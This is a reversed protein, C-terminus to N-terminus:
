RKVVGLAAAYEDILILLFLVSIMWKQKTVKTKNNYPIKYMANFTPHVVLSVVARALRLVMPLFLAAIEEKMDVTFFCCCVRAKKDEILIEEMLDKRRQREKTENKKRRRRQYGEKKEKSHDEETRGRNRRAKDDVATNWPKTAEVTQAELPRWNRTLEGRL